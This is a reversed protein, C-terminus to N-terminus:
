AQQPTQQGRIAEWDKVDFPINRGQHEQTLWAILHAHIEPHAPRTIDREISDYIVTNKKKFDLVALVWHNRAPINVPIIMLDYHQLIEFHNTWREVNDYSFVGDPTMRTYWFTNAFFCRPMHPNALPPPPKNGFRGNVQSSWWRMMWNISGENLLKRTQLREFDERTVDMGFASVINTHKDYQPSSLLALTKSVHNREKIDEAIKTPPAPPQVGQEENNTRKRRREVSTIKTRGDGTTEPDIDVQDGGTATRKDRELIKKGPSAELEDAEQERVTQILRVITKPPDKTHQQTNVAATERDHCWEDSGEALHEIIV